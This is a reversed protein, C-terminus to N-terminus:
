YHNQEKKKADTNWNLQLGSYSMKLSGHQVKSYATDHNMSM